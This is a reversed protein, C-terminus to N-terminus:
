HVLRGTRAGLRRLGLALFVYAYGLPFIVLAGLAALGAVIQLSGSRWGLFLVFPLYAALMWLPAQLARRRIESEPRARLWWSAWVALISYPIGGYLLSALLVQTLKILAPSGPEWHLGHVVLAVVGPVLLPLWVALRYYM